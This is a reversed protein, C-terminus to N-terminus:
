RPLLPLDPDTRPELFPVEDITVAIPLGRGDLVRRTHEVLPTSRPAWPFASSAETVTRTETEVPETTWLLGHESLLRDLPADGHLLASRVEEPLHWPVILAWAVALPLHPALSDELLVHRHLVPGTTRLRLLGPARIRPIEDQSLRRPRVPRGLLAEALDTVGRSSRVLLTFLRAAVPDPPLSGGSGVGDGDSGATADATSDNM